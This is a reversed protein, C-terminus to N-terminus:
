WCVHLTDGDEVSFFSLENHDSDLPIDFAKGKQKAAYTVTLQASPPLKLSRKLMMKLRSVKITPLLTQQLPPRGDMCTVNLTLKQDKLKGRRLSFESQERGDAPAGHERVLDLYTPHSEVFEHTLRALHPDPDGGAAYYADSFTNLYFIEYDRKEKRSASTRNLMVLSRIIAFAFEPFYNEAQLKFDLALTHLAPLRSLQCVSRWKDLPNNALFLSGLREFPLAVDGTDRLEVCPIRCNNANLEQLCPLHALHMLQAWDSIPNAGVDLKQLSKLEGCPVPGLATLNNFAVQLNTLSPFMQACQLLQQWSQQPLMHNMILHQVGTFSPKLADPDEPFALRNESVDLMHLKPLQKAIVAVADWHPLLCASLNLDTVRPLLCSLSNPGAHSVLCEKLEVLRLTELASQKKSTHEMGVFQVFRANIAHQVMHEVLKSDPPPAQYKGRVAAELDIGSLLKTPRVFSGSTQFHAHFYRVGNHSGDHKGRDPNDWDVGIWIGSADGVQGVFCVVGRDGTRCDQVRSGITVSEGNHKNSCFVRDMM